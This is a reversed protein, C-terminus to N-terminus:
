YCIIVFYHCYIYWSLLLFSCFLGVEVEFLQPKKLFTTHKQVSVVQEPPVVLFLLASIPWHPQESVSPSCVTIEIAEM